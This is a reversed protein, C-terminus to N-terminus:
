RELYTSDAISIARSNPTSDRMKPERTPSISVSTMYDEQLSASIRKSLEKTIQVSQKRGDM